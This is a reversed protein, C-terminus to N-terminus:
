IYNIFLFGVNKVPKLTLILQRFEIERNQAVNAFSGLVAGGIFFTSRYNLGIDFNLDGEQTISNAIVNNFYGGHDAEGHNIEGHNTTEFITGVGSVTVPDVGAINEHVYVDFGAARLQREMWRYNSRAPTRGPFSMKRLIAAKRDVLPVSPNVIMGLRIEWQSADDATFNDNDPILADKFGVASAYATSESIALAKHMRDIFGGFPHKFARGKPYFRKTVRRIIENYM